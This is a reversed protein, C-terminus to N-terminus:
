QRPLIDASSVSIQFLEALERRIRDVAQPDVAVTVKVVAGASQAPLSSGFELGGIRTRLGSTVSHISTDPAAERVRVVMDRHSTLKERWESLLLKAELVSTQAKSQAELAREKAIRRCDRLYTELEDYQSDIRATAEETVEMTEGVHTELRRVSELLELKGDLLKRELIGLEERCKEAAKKLELVEACARHQTSACVHCLAAGHNSCFLELPKGRGHVPCHAPEKSSLKAPTLSTLDEMLHDRTAAFNKHVQCCAQCMLEWCTLCIAVAPATRQCGGCDRRDQRLLRECRVLAEMTTDTPLADVAQLRARGDADNGGLDAIECKCVPCRLVQNGAATSHSARRSSLLCQRCLVHACPLIKPNQFQHRCITCRTDYDGGAALCAPTAVAAMTM